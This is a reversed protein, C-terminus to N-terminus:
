RRWRGDDVLKTYAYGGVEKELMSLVGHRRLSLVERRGKRGEEAHHTGAVAASSKMALLLLAANGKCHTVRMRVIRSSLFSGRGSSIRIYTAGRYSAVFMSMPQSACAHSSGKACRLGTNANSTDACVPWVQDHLYPHM